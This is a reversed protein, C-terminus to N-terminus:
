GRVGYPFVYSYFSSYRKLHELFFTFNARLEMKKKSRLEHLQIYKAVCLQLPAAFVLASYDWVGRYYKPSSL